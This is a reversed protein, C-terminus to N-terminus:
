LHMMCCQLVAVFAQVAKSDCSGQGSNLYMVISVIVLESREM